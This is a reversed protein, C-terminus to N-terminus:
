LEHTLGLGLAQGAREDLRSSARTALAKGCPGGRDPGREGPLPASRGFGDDLRLEGANATLGGPTPVISGHGVVRVTQVVQRLADGGRLLEKSTSPL